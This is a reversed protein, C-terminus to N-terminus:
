LGDGFVVPLEQVLELGPAELGVVEGPKAGPEFNDLRELIIEPTLM